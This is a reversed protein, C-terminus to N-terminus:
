VKWCPSKKEQKRCIETLFGDFSSPWKVHYSEAVKADEQWGSYTLGSAVLEDLKCLQPDSRDGAKISQKRTMQALFGDFLRPNKVLYHEAEKEDAEWGSYTLGSAVLADLQPHSRDGAKISQKRTMEALFGDFSSPWKVYHHEAMTVDTQWGSYTLGSAVLADLECLQSDSRDCAKISQKRTMEALFGDFSSPWKVHYREAEKVDTQWGSYTLGSAVVADLTLLQPHSRNGAKISQKRTM